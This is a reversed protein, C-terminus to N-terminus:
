VPYDYELLIKAADKPDAMLQCYYGTSMEGEVMIPDQEETKAVSEYRERWKRIEKQVIAVADELKIAMIFEKFTKRYPDVKSNQLGLFLATLLIVARERYGFVALGLGLIPSAVLINYYIAAKNTAPSQTIPSLATMLIRTQRWIQKKIYQVVPKQTNKRTLFVTNINETNKVMLFGWTLTPM